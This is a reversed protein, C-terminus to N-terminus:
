SSRHQNTGNATAVLLERLANTLVQEQHSEVGSVVTAWPQSLAERNLVHEPNMRMARVMEKLAEIRSVQTRPRISLGANAYIQRLKDVGLAQVQNYTDTVHGLMYDAHSEPVGAAVLNTKFYKRM